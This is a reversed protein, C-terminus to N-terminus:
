YKHIEFLFTLLIDPAGRFTAGAFSFLAPSIGARSGSSVHAATTLRQWIAEAV